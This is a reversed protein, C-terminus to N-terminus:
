HQAIAHRRLGSQEGPADSSPDAQREQPHRCAERNQRSPGGPSGEKSGPSADPIGRPSPKGSDARRTGLSGIHVAREKAMSSGAEGILARGIVGPWPSGKVKRSSMTWRGAHCREPRAAALVDSREDGGSPSPEPGARSRAALARDTLLAEVEGHGIVPEYAHPAPRRVPFRRHHLGAPSHRLFLARPDVMRRNSGYRQEFTV